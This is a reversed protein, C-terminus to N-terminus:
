SDSVQQTSPLWYLEAPHADNHLYERLLTMRLREMVRKSRMNARLTTATFVVESNRERFMQILMLAATTAIGQGWFNPHLRWGLEVAGDLHVCPKAHVWGVPTHDTGVEIIFYGYPNNFTLWREIVNAAQELTPPAQMLVHERVADPTDLWVIFDADLREPKRLSILYPLM